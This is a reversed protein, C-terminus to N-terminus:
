YLYPSNDIFRGRVAKSPRTAVAPKRREGDMAWALVACGCTEPVHVPHLELGWAANRFPM